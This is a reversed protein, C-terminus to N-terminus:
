DFVPSVDGITTIAPRVGLQWLIWGGSLGFPALAVSLIAGFFRTESDIGWRESIAYDRGMTFADVVISVTEVVSPLIVAAAVGLILCEARSLVSRWRSVVFLYVTGVVLSWLSAAGVIAAVGILAEKRPSAGDFLVILLVGLTASPIPAAVLSLLLRWKSLDRWRRQTPRLELTLRKM